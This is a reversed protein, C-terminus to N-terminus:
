QRSPIMLSPIQPSSKEWFANIAERVKAKREASCGSLSFGEPLDSLGVPIQDYDREPRSKHWYFLYFPPKDKLAQRFLENYPLFSGAGLLRRTTSLLRDFGSDATLLGPTKHEFIATYYMATVIREDTDIGLAKELALAKELTSDEAPQHNNPLDHRKTIRYKLGLERDLFCIQKKLEKYFESASDPVEFEKQKSLRVAIGINRQLEQLLVRSKNRCMSLIEPRMGSEIYLKKGEIGSAFRQLEKTVGPITRTKPHKLLRQFVRLDGRIQDLLNSRSDLANYSNVDYVERFVPGSAASTDLYLVESTELIQDLTIETM